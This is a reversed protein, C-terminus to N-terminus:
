RVGAVELMSRQFLAEKAVVRGSADRVFRVERMESGDKAIRRFRDPAIPKLTSLPAAATPDPVNPTVPGGNWPRIIPEPHRNSTTHTPHPGIARAGEIITMSAFAPM